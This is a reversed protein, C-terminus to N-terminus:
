IDPDKKNKLESIIKELRIIQDKQMKLQFYQSEVKNKLEYLLRDNAQWVYKKSMENKKILNEIEKKWPYAPRFHIINRSLIAKPEFIFRFCYFEDENIYKWDNQIRYKLWEEFESFDIKLLYQMKENRLIKLTKNDEKKLLVVCFGILPVDYNVLYSKIILFLNALNIEKDIDFILDISHKWESSKFLFNKEKNQPIEINENWVCNM